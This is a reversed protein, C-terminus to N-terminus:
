RNWGNLTHGFSELVKAAAEFRAWERESMSRKSCLADYVAKAEAETTPPPAHRPCPTDPGAIHKVRWLCRPCFREPHLAKEARVSGAVSGHSRAM